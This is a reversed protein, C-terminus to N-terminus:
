KEPVYVRSVNSSVYDSAHEKYYADIEAQPPNRYELELQRQYFEALTRLQLLYLSAAFETMQDVGADKAANALVLLEVYKEALAREVPPLQQDPKTVAQMVSDFEERGVTRVCKDGNTGATKDSKDCLGHVTIVTEEAPADTAKKDPKAAPTPSPSPTKADGAAKPPHAKTPTSTTQSFLSSTFLVSILLKRVMGLGRFRINTHIKTM